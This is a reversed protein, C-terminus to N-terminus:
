TKQAIKKEKEAVFDDEFPTDIFRFLFNIKKNLCVPCKKRNRVKSLNNNKKLKM